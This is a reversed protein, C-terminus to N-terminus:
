CEKNELDGMVKKKVEMESKIAILDDKVKYNWLLNM